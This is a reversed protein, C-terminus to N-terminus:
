STIAVQGSGPDEPAHLDLLVLEAPCDWRLPVGTVGLGRSVFGLAQGGPTVGPTGEAPSQVVRDGRVWGRLVNLLTSRRKLPGVLPLRVQGGHTHGSLTLGVWAPVQSLYDPNHALLVVAGGAHDRLAADLDQQGFWWDDVGAVFLDDRVQVGANNILRVGVRTLQEAFQQRTANTNLSTWDHNGWVAYVGLPAHLQALEALLKGHRRRGVGSDLFDGTVVIVDPSAARTAQVWRRVSRRRMFVGYHLDSLHAIRVPRTLGPLAARHTTTQFRYTNAVGLALAGAATWGITNTLARRYM